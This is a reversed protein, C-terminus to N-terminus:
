LADNENDNTASRHFGKPIGDIGGERVRCVCSDVGNMALAYLWRQQTDSLRDTPGKVEVLKCQFQWEGTLLSELSIDPTACAFIDRRPQSSADEITWDEDAARQEEELGSIDEMMEFSVEDTAENQGLISSWDFTDEGRLGRILLLDPAGSVFSRHELCKMRCLAELGANGLALATAQLPILPLSWLACRCRTRYLTRYQTGIYLIITEINETELWTLKAEIADKRIYM